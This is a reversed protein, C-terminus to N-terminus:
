RPIRSSEVMDVQMGGRTGDGIGEGFLQAFSDMEPHEFAVRGDVDELDFGSYVM